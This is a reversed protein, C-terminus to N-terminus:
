SAQLSGKMILKAQSAHESTLGVLSNTLVLRNKLFAPLSNLSKDDDLIIFDDKTNNLHFWKIIEDRRSLNEDNNGLRELKEIEIGRLKFIRSWEDLTYISKHSTTLVVTADATILEKLANIANQSFMPFGDGLIEPTKWGAAPVMVGDIDLLVLM